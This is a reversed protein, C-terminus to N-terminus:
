KLVMLKTLEKDTITNLVTKVSAFRALNWIPVMADRYSTLFNKYAEGCIDSILSGVQDDFVEIAQEVDRIFKEMKDAKLTHPTIKTKAM